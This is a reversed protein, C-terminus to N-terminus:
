REPLRMYFFGKSSIQVATHNHSKNKFGLRCPCNNQAEVEMNTNFVLTKANFLLALSPSESLCCLGRQFAYDAHHFYYFSLSRHITLSPEETAAKGSM